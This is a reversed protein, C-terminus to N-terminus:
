TLSPNNFVIAFLISGLTALLLALAFAVWARNEARIATAIVEDRPNAAAATVAAYAALLFGGVLLLYIGSAITGIASAIVPEVGSARSLLVLGGVLSLVGIVLCWLAIFLKWGASSKLAWAAQSQGTGNEAVYATSQPQRMGRSGFDLSPISAAEIWASKSPDWVHDAPNIIGQSALRQIEALGYPGESGAGNSYYWEGAVMQPPTNPGRSAVSATARTASPVEAVAAADEKGFLEAYSSAALWSVGDTSVEHMRGVQGKRVLERIKALSFPGHERGRIRVSYNSM